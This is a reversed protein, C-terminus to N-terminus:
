RNTQFVPPASGGTERNEKLVKPKVLELQPEDFAQRDQPKGEHLVQSQLSYVNCNSLWQTRAVVVGEFGTIKDRLVDGLEYKFNTDM